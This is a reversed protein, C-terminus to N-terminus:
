TQTIHVEHNSEFGVWNILSFLFERFGVKGDRNWDMEKFRTTTIHIPSKEKPFDDNMAKIMDKKDLKGDGNKDLFLFAEIITDFIAKLERSGMETATHNSTSTGGLLYILCLIVIFENFKMGKNKGLDCSEFLENIEQETCNFQLKQLCKALEMHDIAGNSDADFQRFVGRIEEFGTRFLPFKLIISNISRISSNGPKSRQKVEMLKRELESDLKAYGNTSNCCGLM